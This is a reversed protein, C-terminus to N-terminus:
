RKAKRPVSKPNHQSILHCDRCRAETNKETDGYMRKNRKHSWHYGNAVLSSWPFEILPMKCKVCRGKDRVFVRHRLDDLDEDTLRIIGLKGIHVSMSVRENQPRNRFAAAPHNAIELIAPYM